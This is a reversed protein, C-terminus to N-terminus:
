DVVLTFPFYKDNIKKLTGNKRLSQLGQNFLAKLEKDDKRVAVAVGEGLTKDDKGSVSPGVFEYGKGDKSLFSDNIQVVFGFHLDARGSLLELYPESAGQYYKVDAIDGYFKRVYSAQATGAQVAIKKGKLGERSIPINAGKKAVFRNEMRYYPESFDIVRKRDENINLSTILADSKKTVLGPILADFAVNVLKCKLKLEECLANSLDVEFGVLKGDPGVSEFPPYTADMAITVEKWEKASAGLAIAALALAALQKAPIMKRM